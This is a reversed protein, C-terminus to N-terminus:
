KAVLLIRVILDEVTIGPHYEDQMFGKRYIKYTDTCQKVQKHAHEIYETFFLIGLKQNNCYQMKKQKIVADIIDEDIAKYCSLPKM